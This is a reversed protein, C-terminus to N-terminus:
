PEAAVRETNRERERERKKRTEAKMDGLRAAWGGGRFRRAKRKDIQGITKM